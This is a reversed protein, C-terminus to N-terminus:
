MCMTKKYQAMVELTSTEAYIQTTTINKHGLLFQITTLNAGSQLMKTAMTHRLIHPTVPSTINTRDKIKKVIKEIARQKLRDYPSREAIFLYESEGKRNKLYESIYYKAVDSLLIMREKNGKGITTLRNNLFDIDSIKVNVIESLRMGTSFAFEIIARERDTKCANRLQELEVSNISKRIREPEKVKKLKSSIDKDIIDELFLFGFFSKVCVIISNLTNPLVKNQKHSIYMRLDMITIDELDKNIYRDMENLTYKKNKITNESLGEIKMSNAYLDIYKRINGVKEEEKKNIIYFYTIKYVIDTLRGRDDPTLNLEDSIQSILDVCFIENNM